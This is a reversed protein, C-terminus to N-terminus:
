ALLIFLCFFFLILLIRFLHLLSLFKRTLHIHSFTRPQQHQQQGFSLIFLLYVKRCSYYANFAGFQVYYIQHMLEKENESSM